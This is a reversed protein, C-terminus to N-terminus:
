IAESDNLLPFYVLNNHKYDWITALTALILIVWEWGVSSCNFIALAIFCAGFIIDSKLWQKEAQDFESYKIIKLVLLWLGDFFLVIGFYLSFKKLDLLSQSMLYFFSAQVFFGGFDLPLKGRKKSDRDMELHISAGHVFRCITPLLAFLLILSGGKSLSALAETFALGIVVYYIM